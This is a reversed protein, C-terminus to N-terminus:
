KGRQIEGYNVDTEDIVVTATGHNLQVVLKNLANSLEIVMWALQKERLTSDSDFKLMRALEVVSDPVGNAEALEINFTTM